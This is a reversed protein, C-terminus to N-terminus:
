EANLKDVLEKPLKEIKVISAKCKNPMEVEDNLLRGNLVQGLASTYSICNNEPDSDWVGLLHFIEEEGDDLYKVTVTSGPVVINDVNQLSFDVAQTKFISAEIEDRRSQLYAQQEKAAKYEANEKLDGYSRAHAIAASNEPIQKNIIDNLTDMMKNFSYLSTIDAADESQKAVHKRGAAAFMKKGEGKEIHHKVAPSISSCKVLLSQKEDMRMNDCAQIARLLDMEDGAIREILKQQFLKDDIFLSKVDQVASSNNKADLAKRLAQPSITAVTSDPLKSRNKWIWLIADAPLFSADEIAAALVDLDLVPVVSNWCRYSLQLLLSAMYEDSFLDVTLRAIIPLYKASLKEWAALKEGANNVPEPWFVVQGKVEEGLQVLRHEPIYQKLMALSEALMQMSEPKSNLRLTHFTSNLVEQEKDSFVSGDYELLLTNLEHLTRASSPHRGATKAPSGEESANWWAEFMDNPIGADTSLCLAIQRLISDDFDSIFSKRVDEKWEPLSTTIQKGKISVAPLSDLFLLDNLARKLNMTTSTSATNWKIAIESTIEDLAEVEGFRGSQSNFIVVEPKLKELTNFREAIQKITIKEDRLGVAKVVASKMFPSSKLCNFARQLSIRIVPSDSPALRALELCFQSKVPSTEISAGWAELLFDIGSIIEESSLDPCGKLSSLLGEIVGVDDSESATFFLKEMNSNM